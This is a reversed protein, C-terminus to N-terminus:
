SRTYGRRFAGRVRVPLAHRRLVRLYIRVRGPRPLVITDVGDQLVHARPIDHESAPDAQPVEPARLPGLSRRGPTEVVQLPTGDTVRLASRTSKEQSPRQIRMPPPNPI